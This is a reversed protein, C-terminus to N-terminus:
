KHSSSCKFLHGNVVVWLWEFGGLVVLWLWGDGDVHSLLDLKLFNCRFSLDTFICFCFGQLTKNCFDALHFM